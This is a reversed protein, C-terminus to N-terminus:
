RSSRLNSEAKELEKEILAKAEGRTIKRRNLILVKMKFAWPQAQQIGEEVLRKAEALNMLYGYRGTKFGQARAEFAWAQGSKIGDEIMAMALDKSADTEFDLLALKEMFAWPQKKEIGEDVVSHAGAKSYKYGYTFLGTKLGKAKLRLAWPEGRTVGEEVLKRALGKAQIKLDRSACGIASNLEEAKQELAWFEHKGVGLDILDQRSATDKDYGYSGDRLGEVKLTLAWAQNQRVGKEILDNALTKNKEYGFRSNVLGKVKLSKLLPVVEIYYRKVLDFYTETDLFKTLQLHQAISRWFAEEKFLNLQASDVLSMIWQERVGLHSRVEVQIEPPLDEFQLAEEPENGFNALVRTSLLLILLCSRTMSRISHASRTTCVSRTFHRLYKM